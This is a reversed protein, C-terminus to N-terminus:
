GRYLVVHRCSPGKTLLPGPAVFVHRLTITWLGYPRTEPGPLATRCYSPHQWGGEQSHIAAQYVLLGEKDPGLSVRYTATYLLHPPRGREFFHLPLKYIIICHLTTIAQM